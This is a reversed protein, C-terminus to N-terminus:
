PQAVPVRHSPMLEPVLRTCLRGEEEWVPIPVLYIADYRTAFPPAVFSIEGTVRGSGGALADGVWAAEISVFYPMDMRLPRSEDAVDYFGSGPEFSCSSFAIRGATLRGGDPRIITDGSMAVLMAYVSTPEPVDQFAVTVRLRSQVGIALAAGRPTVEVVEFSGTAERRPGGSEEPPRPGEPQVRVRVANMRQSDFEACGTRGEELTVVFPVLLLGDYYERQPTPTLTFHADVVGDGATPTSVLFGFTFALSSDPNGGTVQSAAEPSVGLMGLVRAATASMTLPYHRAAIRFPNDGSNGFTGCVNLRAGRVSMRGEGVVGQDGDLAIPLLYLRQGARAGRYHVRVDVTAAQHMPHVDNSGLDVLRFQAGGQAAAHGCAAVLLGLVLSLTVQRM